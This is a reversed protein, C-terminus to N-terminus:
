PPSWLANTMAIHTGLRTAGPARMAMCLHRMSGPPIVHRTIEGPAVLQHAFEDGEVVILKHSPTSLNDSNDSDVSTSSESDDESEIESNSSDSSSDDSSSKELTNIRGNSSKVLTVLGAGKCLSVTQGGGEFFDESVLVEAAVGVAAAGTKKEPTDDKFEGDKRSNALAEGRHEKKKGKLARKDKDKKVKVKELRAKRREPCDAHWHMKGCTSCPNPPLKSDTSAQLTSNSPLPSLGTKRPDGAQLAGGSTAVTILEAEYDALVKNIAEVTKDANGRSNSLCIETTFREALPEGLRRAAAEYRTAALTSPVVADASQSNNWSDWEERWANFAAVSRNEPGSDMLRQLKGAIATNAFPGVEDAHAHLMRLLTIGSNNSRRAWDRRVARVNVTSLITSAVNRDISRCFEPAVIIRKEDAATLPPTGRPIGSDVFIDLSISRQLHTSPRSQRPSSRLTDPDAHGGTAQGHRIRAGVLHPLHVLYNGKM